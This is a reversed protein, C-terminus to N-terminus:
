YSVGELTTKENAALRLIRAELYKWADKKENPFPREGEGGEGESGAGDGM